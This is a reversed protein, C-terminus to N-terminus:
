RQSEEARGAAESECSAIRLSLPKSPVGSFVLHLSFPSGPFSPHAAGRGKGHAEPPGGAGGARTRGM